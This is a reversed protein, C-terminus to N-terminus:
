SERKWPTSETTCKMEGGDDSVSCRVENLERGPVREFGKYTNPDGDPVLEMLVLGPYAGATKDLQLGVETLIGHYRRNEGIKFEICRGDLGTASMPLKWTTGVLSEVPGFTDPKSAGATACGGLFLMLTGATIWFVGRAKIGANTEGQVQM